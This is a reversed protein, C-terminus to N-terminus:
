TTGVRAVLPLTWTRTLSGSTAIVTAYLRQGHVLVLSDPLIGRYCGDVAPDENLSIPWTEGAVEEGGATTLTATVTAGSITEGTVGNTLSPIELVHDTDLLIVLPLSM